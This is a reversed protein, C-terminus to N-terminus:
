RKSPDEPDLDVSYGADRQARIIAVSSPTGEPFRQRAWAHLEEISLPGDSPRRPEVLIPMTARPPEAGAAAAEFIALMERQLSRGNAAARARLRDALADPVNKISLNVPM